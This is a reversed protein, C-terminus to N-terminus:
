YSRNGPGHVEQIWPDFDAIGYFELMLVRVDDALM